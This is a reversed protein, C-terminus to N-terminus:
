WVDGCSATQATTPEWGVEDGGLLTPVVIPVRESVDWIVEWLARSAPVPAGGAKQKTQPWSIPVWPWATRDRRGPLAEMGRQAGYPLKRGRRALGVEGTVKLVAGQHPSCPLHHFVPLHLFKRRARQQSEAQSAPGAGPRALTAKAPLIRRRHCGPIEKICLRTNTPFTRSTRSGEIGYCGAPQLLRSGLGSGAGVWPPTGLM